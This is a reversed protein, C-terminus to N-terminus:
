RKKARALIHNGPPRQVLELRALCRRATRSGRNHILVRLFRTERQSTPANQGVPILFLTLQPNFVEDGPVYLIELDPGEVYKDLISFAVFSIVSFATALFVGLEVRQTIGLIDWYIYTLYFFAATIIIMTLVFLIRRELISAM